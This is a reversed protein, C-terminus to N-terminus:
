TGSTRRGTAFLGPVYIRSALAAAGPLGIMAAFHTTLVEQWVSRDFQQSVIWITFGWTFAAALVSSVALWFAKTGLHYTSTQEGPREAANPM